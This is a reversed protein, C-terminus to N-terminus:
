GDSQRARAVIVAQDDRESGVPRRVLRMTEGGAREEASVDLARNVAGCGALLDAGVFIEEAPSPRM